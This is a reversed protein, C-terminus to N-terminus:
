RSVPQEGESPVMRVWFSYECDLARVRLGGLTARGCPGGRARGQDEGCLKLVTTMLAHSSPKGCFWPVQTNQPTKNQPSKEGFNVKGWQMPQKCSMSLSEVTSCLETFHRTEPKCQPLYTLCGALGM